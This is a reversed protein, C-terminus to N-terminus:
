QCNQQLWAEVLRWYRTLTTVQWVRHGVKRLAVSPAVLVDKDPIYDKHPLSYKVGVTVKEKPLFNLPKGREPSKGFHRYVKYDNLRMAFSMSLENDSGLKALIEKSVRSYTKWRDSGYGGRAVLELIDVATKLSVFPLTGEYHHEHGPLEKILRLLVVKEKATLQPLYPVLNPESM